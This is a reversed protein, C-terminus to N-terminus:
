SRTNAHRPRLVVWEMPHPKAPRLEDLALAQDAASLTGLAPHQEVSRGRARVLEASHSSRFRALIEFSIRPDLFDHLEALVSAHRLASVLDPRLLELECGECDMFVLSGPVLLRELDLMSCAGAVHVRDAVRNAQATERTASQWRPDVDFAHVDAAPLRRAFGVAYYGEGSGVNVVTRPREAILEEIPAHLEEEYSGLLLPGLNSWHEQSPLNMGAFPGGQVVAGHRAVLESAIRAQARRIEARKASRMARVRRRIAESAPRPLLSILASKVSSM